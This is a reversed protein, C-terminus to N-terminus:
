YTNRRRKDEQYVSCSKASIAPAPSLKTLIGRGYQAMSVREPSGKRAWVEQFYTEYPLMSRKPQCILSVEQLRNLPSTFVANADIEVEVRERATLIAPVVRPLETRDVHKVSRHSQCICLSGQIINPYNGFEDRLGLIAINHNHESYGVFGLSSCNAM